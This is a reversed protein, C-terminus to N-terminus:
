DKSGQTWRFGWNFAQDMERHGDFYRNVRVVDIANNQNLLRAIACMRANSDGETLRTEIPAQDPIYLSVVGDTGDWNPAGQYIFAFILVEEIEKWCAGNIDLWEGDTVAGTRDDGQLRVYPFADFQGFNEGLAQIVYKRGDKARVFAGLDLDIGKSGGFLNGFMGKDEKGQQWNLNIRIKGFNTQKALSIRPKEKTLSVKSLNISKTPIPIKPPTPAPAPQDDDVEVGFHEALPKLGGNFGQSIFRFKWESNRRYLEGLILAAETRGTLDVVGKVLVTGAREVQISLSGLTAVTKGADCVTTFAVKHIDQPLAPLDINFLSDGDGETLIVLGGKSQKQGYFVMDNDGSVKDNTYLLFASIDSAGASQIRVTLPSTAVPANGGAILDM